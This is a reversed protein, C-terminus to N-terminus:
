HLIMNIKQVIEDLEKAKKQIDDLRSKQIGENDQENLIDLLSLINSLPRRVVHANDYAYTELEKNRNELELTREHVLEELNNQITKVQLQQNSLLENKLSLEENVQDLYQNQKEIEEREKDFRVKIFVVVAAVIASNFLYNLALPNILNETSALTVLIQVDADLTLILNIVCLSVTMFLRTKNQLLGLFIVLVSFYMYSISEEVGGYYKWYLVFMPLWSLCYLKALLDPKGGKILVVSIVLAITFSISDLIFIAQEGDFWLGKIMGLLWFVTSSFVVIKLLKFENNKIDSDNSIM